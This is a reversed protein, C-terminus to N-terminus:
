CARWAAASTFFGVKTFSRYKRLVGHAKKLGIGPLQALFDCGAMICLQLFQDSTWGSLPLSPCNPLDELSLEEGAGTRDLKYLVRLPCLFAPSVFVSLM